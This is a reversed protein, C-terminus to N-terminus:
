LRDPMAGAADPIERLVTETATINAPNVLVAIRVAKPVLEHLLALRKATLEATFFNIGTLNSGPRALSAVLGLKVPDEGVDFVIPIETTAAKAVQSEAFTLARSGRARVARQHIAARQL